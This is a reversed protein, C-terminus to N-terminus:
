SYLINEILYGKFIFCRLSATTTFFHNILLISNFKIETIRSQNVMFTDQIKNNRLGSDCIEMVIHIHTSCLIRM